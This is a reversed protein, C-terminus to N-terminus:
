TGPRNAIVWETAKQLDRVTWTSPDSLFFDRVQEFTDLGTNLDFNPIARSMGEIYNRVSPPTSTDDYVAQLRAKLADIQNQTLPM